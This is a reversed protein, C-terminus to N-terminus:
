KVYKGPEKSTDVPMREVIVQKIDLPFIAILSRESVNPSVRIKHGHFDWSKLREATLLSM